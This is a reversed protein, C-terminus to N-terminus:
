EDGLLTQSSAFDSFIGGTHIFVVPRERGFRGDRCGDLLACFAKATYVPDLIIGEMRALLRIAEIAAAYPMAYGEGVYGDLFRMHADAFEVPLAFQKAAQRCLGGVERTHHAVDDSVPVGWVCLGELRHLMTGLLAGAYTGGSSVPVIVDCADVGVRGLQDALEVMARIYGWCGLPESAGMPIWRPKRGNEMLEALVTDVIAKRDNEFREQPYFHTRAGFLVDLLHNGQPEVTAEPRLLLVAQMGLRACVAATARCHNSQCTGETVLTDCGKALADEVVYELKRVKNGSLELGTLDDRKMWIQVDGLHRGLRELRVLPTPLAALTVREPEPRPM